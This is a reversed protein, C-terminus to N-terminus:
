TDFSESDQFVKTESAKCRSTTKTTIADYFTQHITPKYANLGEIEIVPAMNKLDSFKKHAGVIGALDQSCRM